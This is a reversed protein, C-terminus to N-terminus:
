ESDSDSSLSNSQLIVALKVEDLSMYPAFLWEGDKYVFEMSFSNTGTESKVFLSVPVYAIGLEQDLTIAGEPQEVVPEIAGDERNQKAFGTFSILTQYTTSLITDNGKLEGAFHIKSLLDDTPTIKGAEVDNLFSTLESVDAPTDTAELLAKAAAIVDAKDEAASKGSLTKDLQEVTSSTTEKVDSPTSGNMLLYVVVSAGAAVFLVTSILVIIWKKSNM